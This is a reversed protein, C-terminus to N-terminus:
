RFGRKIAQSIAKAMKDRMRDVARGLYDHAVPKGSAQAKAISGPGLKEWGIKDHIIELYKDIDRTKGRLTVPKGGMTVRIRYIIGVRKPPEARIAQASELFGEKRPALARAERALLTAQKRMEEEGAKKGHYAKRSIGSIAAELGKLKVGM